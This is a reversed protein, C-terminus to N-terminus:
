RYAVLQDSHVSTFIRGRVNAWTTLRRPSYNVAPVGPDPRVMPTITGTYAPERFAGHRESLGQVGHDSLFRRGILHDDDVITDLLEQSPMPHLQM